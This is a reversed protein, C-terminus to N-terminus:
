KVTVTVVNSKADTPYANRAWVQYTGPKPFQVKRKDTPAPPVDFIAGGPETMWHLNAAVEPEHEPPPKGFPVFGPPVENRRVRKWPGARREASLAVWEGARAKGPVSIRVSITYNEAPVYVFEPQPEPACAPLVV